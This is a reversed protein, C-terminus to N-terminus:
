EVELALHRRPAAAAQERQTRGGDTVHSIGPGAHPLWREVDFARDDAARGADGPFIRGPVQPPGSGLDILPHGLESVLEVIQDSPVCFERYTLRRPLRRVRRAPEAIM